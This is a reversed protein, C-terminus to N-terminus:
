VTAMFHYDYCVLIVRARPHAVKGVPELYVVDGEEDDVAFGGHWGYEGEEGYEALDHQALLDLNHMSMRRQAAHAVLGDQVSAGHSQPRTKRIMTKEAECIRRTNECVLQQLKGQAVHIMDDANRVGPIGV